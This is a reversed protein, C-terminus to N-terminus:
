EVVVVGKMGVGEHPRCAYRYVGSETFMHEFHVGPEVHIDDTRIDADEFVVDHGGGEGTWEWSVTTGAAIKVAPPSFAFAGRHDEAGVTVTTTEVDTEDAITGDWISVGALWEDVAPYDTSPPTAVVIAGKMGDDDHEECVYRYTGTEEFTHEFITGTNAEVPDGSEFADDTSVVNHAGGHGTWEWYVTTGPAIEIAPPDFALYEGDHEADEGVWISVSDDHGARPITGDYGNADALWADLDTESQESADESPETTSTQTSGNEATDPSRTTGSSVCGATATLGAATGLLHRRTLPSRM